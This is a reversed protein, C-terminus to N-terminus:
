KLLTIDFYTPLYLGASKYKQGSNAFLSTMNEFDYLYKPLDYKEIENKSDLTFDYCESLSSTVRYPLRINKRLLKDSDRKVLSFKQIMSRAYNHGVMRELLFQDTLYIENLLNLFEEGQFLENVYKNSIRKLSKSFIHKEFFVIFNTFYRDFFENFAYIFKKYSIEKYDIAVSSFNSKGYLYNDIFFFEQEPQRLRFENCLINETNDCRNLFNSAFDFDGLLCRMIISSQKSFYNSGDMSVQYLKALEANFFFDDYQKLKKSIQKKQELIIRKNKKKMDSFNLELYNDWALEYFEREDHLNLFALRFFEQESMNLDFIPNQEDKSANQSGVKTTGNMFINLIIIKILTYKEKDTGFLFESVSASMKKAFFEIQAETLFHPNKKEHRKGNELSSLRYKDISIETDFRECFKEQTLNQSKRFERVRKGIIKDNLKEFNM